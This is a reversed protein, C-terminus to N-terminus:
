RNGDAAGKVLQGVVFYSHTIVASPRAKVQYATPSVRHYRYVYFDVLTLGSRAIAECWRLHHLLLRRTKVHYQDGCKLILKGNPVLFRPVESVFEMYAELAAAAQGYAGGYAAFRPDKSNAVDIFYPPDYFVVDFAGLLDPRDASLTFADQGERIDSRTLDYKDASLGKWSLGDGYTPDLVKRAGALHFDLVTGFAESATGTLCSLPYKM